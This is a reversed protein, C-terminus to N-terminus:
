RTAGNYIEELTVTITHVQDKGKQPFASRSRGRRAARNSCMGLLEDFLDDVTGHGESELGEQVGQDGVQDYRRRKNEDKLM